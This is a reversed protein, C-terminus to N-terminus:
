PKWTTALEQGMTIIQMETTGAGIELLKADRALREIVYERMYGYGGLISIAENAVWTAMEACYLKGMCVDLRTQGGFIAQQITRLFINRVNGMAVYMRALRNQILQFDILPRGFQSREKAYQVSIEFCREILGLAMAPMGSRENSLGEKVHDRSKASQEGGILRDKPFRCDDFFVESTQSAKMGMKQFPTGTSLGEDERLVIFSQIEKGADGRDLKAYIVFVDAVPGNTIFTKSGNLVYHDGDEVATTRMSGLADSGAGPETLCWAGITDLKMLPRGFAEKQEVTGKALITGGALGTSVGFSMAVGPSVRSIEKVLLNGAIVQMGEMQDDPNPQRKEQSETRLPRSLDMEDIQSRIGLTEVMKRLPDFLPIKGDEIDDIIPEIENMMYQRFMDQIMLHTDNLEFM